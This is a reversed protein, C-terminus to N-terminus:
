RHLLHLWNKHFGQPSHLLFHIRKGSPPLSVVPWYLSTIGYHFRLTQEPKSVILQWKPTSINDTMHFTSNFDRGVVHPTLSFKMLRTSLDGFFYKGPNNHAYVNSVVLERNGLRVHVTLFCGQDDSDISIVECPLNKIFQSSWGPKVGNGSM